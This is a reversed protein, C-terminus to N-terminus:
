RSLPYVAKGPCGSASLLKLWGDGSRVFFTMGYRSLARRCDELSWGPTAPSTEQDRPLLRLIADPEPDYRGGTSADM